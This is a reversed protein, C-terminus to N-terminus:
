DPRSSVYVRFSYRTGSTYESCLVRRGATRRCHWTVWGDWFARPMRPYGTRRRVKARFQSLAYRVSPCNMGSAQAGTYTIGYGSRNFDVIGYGNGVGCYTSAEAGAPAAVSLLACAGLVGILLKKM